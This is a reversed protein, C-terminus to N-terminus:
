AAREAAAPLVVRATTGSGPASEIEIRGGIARVAQRAIALGLGFGEADRGGGRYFRDFIREQEGLSMGPGTDTVEIVVSGGAPRAALVIRGRETHKAANAALNALAQEALDPEAWAALGPPCRVEVDVRAAPSLGSAVEQLLPRLEVRTLRPTEERTQVRALVLLAKTLRALRATEREIHELFRDREEPIEKAGQQLVEVAGTIAALPTRLEHAANTVFEREARERRDRESVDTVVLVATESERRAPLGVLAYTRDESPSLRAQAAVGGGAFLGAAFSRLSFESWPDPLPDGESLTWRGLLRQASENAFEVELRRNVTIVGDQLRELLRSLRDRESELLAFSDRLRERMRDITVALAGLEDRFRPRLPREFSGGEIAAAAAAIRRLRVTILAAVLLGAVAGVLIAWLAAEVIKDRVIGLEAVLEPRSAHALLVAPAAPDAPASRFGPGGKSPKAAPRLPLAVVTLKGEALTEIFRRDDLAAAVARARRPVEALDVRRSRAPTLLRGDAAFVFLALRRREAIVGLARDLDGRRIARSVADAAAVSAGVALDETRDRFARESQRSFVQAVAIATVAAILAFAIALWWRM